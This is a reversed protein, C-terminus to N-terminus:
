IYLIYTYKNILACINWRHRREGLALERLYNHTDGSKMICRRKELSIIARFAFSIPNEPMECLKPCKQQLMHLHADTHVDTHPPSVAFEVVYSSTSYTSHEAISHQTILHQAVHMM